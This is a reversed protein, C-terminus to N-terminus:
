YSRGKCQVLVLKMWLFYLYGHIFNYCSVHFNVSQHMVIAQIFTFRLFLKLSSCCKFFISIPQSGVTLAWLKESIPEIDSTKKHTNKVSSLTNHGVNSSISSKETISTAPNRHIVNSSKLVDSYSRVETTFNKNVNSDKVEIYVKWSYGAYITWANKKNTCSQPKREVTTSNPPLNTSNLDLSQQSTTDNTREFQHSRKIPKLNLESKEDAQVNLLSFDECLQKECNFSKKKLKAPNSNDVTSNKLIPYSKISFCSGDNFFDHM